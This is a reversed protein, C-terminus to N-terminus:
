KVPMPYDKENLVFGPKESFDRRPPGFVDILWTTGDGVYGANCTCTFSGVKNECKANKDCGATGDACEDIDECKKGDEGKYGKKCFCNFGGDINQCDANADCDATKEACEDVDKCTKGDGAWGKSCTCGYSGVTNSCSSNKDCAATKDACEDVDGCTKGDGKYGDKCGCQPEITDTNTCNAALSCPNLASSCVDFGGVKVGASVAQPGNLTGDNATAACAVEDGVKVKQKKLDMTASTEGAVAAGNIRWEYAYTLTDADADTAAKALTCTVATSLDVATPAIGLDAAGPAADQIVVDAAGAAGKAIPDAAVVQATWKEGKKATGAPLKDGTFTTPQGDKLWSFTYKLDAPKRDPDDADKVVSAVLEDLTTPKEPKIAVGPAGPATNVLLSVTASASQKASDTVTVTVKQLGAPLDSADFSAAGVALDGEFHAKTATATTVKVALTKDKDDGLTVEFKVKEGLQVLANDAPTKITVTPAADQSATGDGLPAGDALTAGGDGLGAGDGLSGSGDGGLVEENANTTKGATSNNGCAVALMLPLTLLLRRM